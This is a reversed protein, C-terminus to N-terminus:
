ESCWADADFVIQDEALANEVSIPKGQDGLRHRLFVEEDSPFPWGNRASLERLASYTTRRGDPLSGISVCKDSRLDGGGGIGSLEPTPQPSSPLSVTRSESLWSAVQTLSLVTAVMGIPVKHRWVFAAAELGGRTAMVLWLIAFHTM